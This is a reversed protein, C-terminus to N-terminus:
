NEGYNKYVFRKDKGYNYNIKLLIITAQIEKKKLKCTTNIVLVGLM